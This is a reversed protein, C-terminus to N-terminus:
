GSLETAAIYDMRQHIKDIVFDSLGDFLPRLQFFDIMIIGAFANADVEALQINYQDASECQEITKYNSMYLEYDTRIQWIHRLEHAISNFLDPEPKDNKKIYIAKGDSDTQAFMTDTPFNSTDYSIEPTSIDLIECIENVFKQIM